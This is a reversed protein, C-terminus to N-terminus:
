LGNDKVELNLGFCAVRIEKGDKRGCVVYDDIIKIPNLIQVGRFKHYIEKPVLHVFYCGGRDEETVIYYDSKEEVEDKFNLKKTRVYEALELFLKYFRDSDLREAEKFHWAM